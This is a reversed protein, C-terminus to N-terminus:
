RGEIYIIETDNHLRPVFAPNSLGRSIILRGDMVGATFKPLLGQDPAYVGRWQKTRLDYFRWQGGHAHGSITLEVSPPVYPIYEPHHMLLIHYGDEGAFDRLWNTEPVPTKHRRKIESYSETASIKGQQFATYYGSSLGGIVTKRGKIELTVYCNNLLTVGTSRIIEIDNESLYSEHNGISIFTPALEACNRLLAMANHCEEMNVGSRQKWGHMFDGTHVILEPSRSRLSALIPEPTTDHTDALFAIYVPCGTMKYNTETM